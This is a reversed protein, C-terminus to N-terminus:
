QISKESNKKPFYASPYTKLHRRFHHNMKHPEGFGVRECVEAVRYDGTALLEKARQLRKLTVYVVPSQGTAARFLQGFYSPSLGALRALNALSLDQDLNNEIHELLRDLVPSPLTWRLPHRQQLPAFRAHLLQAALAPGITEIVADNVEANPRVCERHFTAALEGILPAM